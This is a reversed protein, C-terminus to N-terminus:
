GGRNTHKLDSRRAQLRVKRRQPRQVRTRPIQPGLGRAEDAALGLDGLQVCRDLGM